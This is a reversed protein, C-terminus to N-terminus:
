YRILNYKGPPCVPLEGCNKKEENCLKTEKFDNCLAYRRARPIDDVGKWCTAKAGDNFM